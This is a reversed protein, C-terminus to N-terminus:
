NCIKKKMLSTGHGLKLLIVKQTLLLAHEKIDNLKKMIRDCHNLMMLVIGNDKVSLM